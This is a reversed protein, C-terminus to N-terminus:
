SIKTINLNLFPPPYKKNKKGLFYSLVMGPGTPITGSSYLGNPESTVSIKLKLRVSLCVDYQKKNYIIPYNYNYRKLITGSSYLGTPETTVSIKLKLCVSPCVSLCVDYQKTNYILINKNEFCSQNELHRKKHM